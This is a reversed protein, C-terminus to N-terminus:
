RSVEVLNGEVSATVSSFCYLDTRLSVTGSRLQETILHKQVKVKYLELTESNESALFGRCVYSTDMLSTVSKAREM